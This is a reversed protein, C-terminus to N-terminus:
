GGPDDRGDTGVEGIDDTRGRRRGGDGCGTQARGGELQEIRSRERQEVPEERLAQVDGATM